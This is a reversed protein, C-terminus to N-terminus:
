GGVQDSIGYKLPGNHHREHKECHPDAAPDASEKTESEKIDKDQGFQREGYETRYGSL